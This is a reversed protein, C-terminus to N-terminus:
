KNTQRLVSLISYSSKLIRVYTDLSLPILGVATPRLPRKAREMVLVLAKQFRHSTGLWHMSYISEVVLDSELTVENGLYCYIYLEILICIIFFVASAFEMSLIDVTIFTYAATCMMWGGVGFLVLVAWGYVQLIVEAMDAIKQFHLICKVLLEHLIMDYNENLEESLKKAREPLTEFSARLIRLQTSCQYLMAGIFVDSTTNGMSLLLVMYSSHAVVIAFMSPKEIDLPTWFPLEVEKGQFYQVVPFLTWLSVTSVGCSYFLRMLYFSRQATQKLLQAYREGEQNFLEDNLGIILDDVRPQGMRFSVQKSVCTCFSFMPYLVRVVRAANHREQYICILHQIVYLTTGCLTFWCYIKHLRRALPGRGPAGPQAPLLGCFGLRRLVRLHPRVSVGAKSM